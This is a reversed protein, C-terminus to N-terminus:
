FTSVSYYFINLQYREFKHFVKFSNYYPIITTYKPIVLKSYTCIIYICIHMQLQLMEFAHQLKYQWVRVYATYYLFPKILFIWMLRWICLKVFFILLQWFLFWLEYTKPKLKSLAFFFYQSIWNHFQSFECWKCIM